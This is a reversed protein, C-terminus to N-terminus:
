ATTMANFFKGSRESHSSHCSGWEFNWLTVKWYLWPFVLEWSPNQYLFLLHIILFSSAMANFYDRTCLPLTGVKLSTKFKPSLNCSLFIFFCYILKEYPFDTFFLDSSLQKSFFLLILDSSDGKFDFFGILNFFVTCGLFFNCGFLSEINSPSIAVPCKLCLFVNM